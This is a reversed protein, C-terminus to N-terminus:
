TRHLVIWLAGAAAVLGGSVQRPRLTEGLVLRALVLMYVTAMQNLVAAVSADVWKFGGLWLLMSLYTGIFAGPVLTRWLRSPRFAVLAGAGRGQVATWVLMGVTGAVMRVWTVEVLDAHQLVPKAIVVGTATGVIALLAYITGIVLERRDKGPARALAGPDITALAVGSLVALGGVLMAEHIPEGLLLWSQLVIVPAYVTDVVALRAAGIRRLGAFLLTDAVALGLLGSAGLRLWDGLPRDAPLPIGMAVLTLSLLGLAFVNKFLNLSLPSAADSRRFLVVAFSWALPALLACLEGLRTATV